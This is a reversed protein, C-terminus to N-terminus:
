LIYKLIIEPGVEIFQLNIVKQITKLFDRTEMMNFPKEARIIYNIMEESCISEDYSFTTLNGNEDTNLQM